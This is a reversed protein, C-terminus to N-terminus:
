AVIFLLIKNPDSGDGCNDYKWYDIIEKVDREKSM